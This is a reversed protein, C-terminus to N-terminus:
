FLRVDEATLQLGLAQNVAEAVEARIDDEIEGETGELDVYFSGNSNYMANSTGFAVTFGAKGPRDFLAGTIYALVLM